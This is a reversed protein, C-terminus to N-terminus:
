NRVVRSLVELSIPKVIHATFGAKESSRRDAEGGYGTIAILRLDAPLEPMRRLRRALEYGDIGPLGIDVLCVAPRFTRALALATIGDYAVRVDYGLESLTEGLSEAIDRNDDVVL